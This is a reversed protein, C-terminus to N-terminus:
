IVKKSAQVADIIENITYEMKKCEGQKCEFQRDDVTCIKSKYGIWCGKSKSHKNWKWKLYNNM